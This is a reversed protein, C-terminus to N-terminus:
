RYISKVRGWTTARTPTVVDLCVSLNDLRIMTGMVELTVKDPGPSVPIDFVYHGPQRISVSTTPPFPEYGIVVYAWGFGWSGNLYRNPLADFEVTGVMGGIPRDLPLRYDVEAPSTGHTEFGPYFGLGRNGTSDSVYMLWGGLCWACPQSTIFAHMYSDTEVRNDTFSDAYAYACRNGPAASACPTAATLGALV